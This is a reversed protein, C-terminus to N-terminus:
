MYQVEALYIVTSPCFILFFRFFKFSPKQKVLFIKALFELIGFWYSVWSLFVNIVLISNKLIQYSWVCFYTRKEYQKQVKKFVPFM